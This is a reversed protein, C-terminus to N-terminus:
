RPAPLMRQRQRLPPMAIAPHPAALRAPDGHGRHRPRWTLRGRYPASRTDRCARPNAHSGQPAARLGADVEEARRCLVRAPPEGARRKMGAPVRGATFTTADHALPWLRPAAHIGVAVLPPGESGSQFGAICRGGPQGGRREFDCARTRAQDSGFVRDMQSATLLSDFCAASGREIM